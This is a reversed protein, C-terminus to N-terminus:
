KKPADHLHIRLSVGTSALRVHTLAVQGDSDTVILTRINADGPNPLQFRGNADTIAVAVPQSGGLMFEKVTAGSM